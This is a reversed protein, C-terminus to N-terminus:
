RAEYYPQSWVIHLIIHLIQDDVYNHLYYAFNSWRFLNSKTIYEDYWLSKELSKSFYPMGNSM